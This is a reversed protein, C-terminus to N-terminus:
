FFFDFLNEYSNFCWWLQNLPPAKYSIPKKEPKEKSTWLKNECYASKKSFESFLLLAYGSNGVKAWREVLYMLVKQTKTKSDIPLIFLKLIVNQLEFTPLVVNPFKENFTNVSNSVSYKGRIQRRGNAELDLTPCLFVRSPFFAGFTGM